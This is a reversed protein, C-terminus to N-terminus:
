QIKLTIEVPLVECKMNREVFLRSEAGSKTRFMVAEDFEKFGHLSSTNGKWYFKGDERRIVYMTRKIITTTHRDGKDNWFADKCRQSCFAQSYQKKTFREGCVPCICTNGVMADKNQKYQYENM